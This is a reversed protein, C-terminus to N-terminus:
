CASSPRALSDESRRLHPARPTPSLGAAEGDWPRRRPMTWCIASRRAGCGRTRPPFLVSRRSPRRQRRPSLRRRVKRSGRGCAGDIPLSTSSLAARSPADRLLVRHMSWSSRQRYFRVGHGGAAGHTMMWRGDRRCRQQLTLARGSSCRRPAAQQKSKRRGRWRGASSGGAGGGGGGGSDVGMIPLLMHRRLRHGPSLSSRGFGGRRRRGHMRRRMLINVERASYRDLIQDVLRALASSAGDAHLRGMWGCAVRLNRLRRLWRQVGVAVDLM